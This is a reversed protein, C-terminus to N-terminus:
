TISIVDVDSADTVSSTGFSYKFTGLDTVGNFSFGRAFAVGTLTFTNTCINVIDNTGSFEEYTEVELMYDILGVRVYLAVSTDENGYAPQADQNMTLTWSKIKITASSRGSWWYGVAQGSTADPDRIFANAVSGTTFAQKAMFAVSASVLGGPAGSLSLSSLKCGTLTKGVNGDNIGVNFDRWRQFLRSTSFLQMSLVTVDFALSGSFTNVGDAHRVRTRSVGSPPTDTMSLFSTNLSEDFSGSTILVQVGDIEASGGYGLRKATDTM